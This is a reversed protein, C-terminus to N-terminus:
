VAIVDFAFMNLRFNFAILGPSAPRFFNSREKLVRWISFFCHLQGLQPRRAGFRRLGSLVGIEFRFVHMGVRYHYLRVKAKLHHWVWEGQPLVQEM